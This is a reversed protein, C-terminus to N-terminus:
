FLATLNQFFPSDEPDPFQKILDELEFYLRSAASFAAWRAKGGTIMPTDDFYISGDAHVHLSALVISNFRSAALAEAAAKMEQEEAPSPNSVSFTGVTYLGLM